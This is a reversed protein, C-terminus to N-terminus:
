GDWPPLEVDDWSRPESRKEAIRYGKARYLRAHTACVPKTFEGDIVSAVAESTCAICIRV